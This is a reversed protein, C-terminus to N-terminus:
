GAQRVSDRSVLQPSFVSKLELHNKKYVNKLIWHAAMCGMEHVPYNVTSLKPFMYNSFDVNDFGFVSMEAPINLGQDRAEDMAGSAMEDNGCAVATFPERQALLHRMGKVGSAPLFDGEYVLTPNDLIGHESLARCHGTYRNTADKKWLPGSIYAIDKHGQNLLSKTAIYGGLENDLCICRDELGPVLRNIIVIPTSGCALNILYEDSVLEVHLILADCKRATLFEIGEKEAALESHGATIIAHIESSRLESEIGSMLPGYFPGHLESVLVGVSETRNSALSKAISSPRYGLEDMAAQVQARKKESVRTTKNMVRSVTALSVGALDAVEYITAM